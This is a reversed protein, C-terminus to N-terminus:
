DTDPMQLGATQPPTPSNQHMLMRWGNTTDQYVNTAYVIQSSEMGPAQVHEEVLHIAVDGVELWALHKIEMDLVVEGSMLPEWLRGIGARGRQAPMMPLLCLIDDSDAWVAMMAELDKEDIADYYADEADQPTSFNASM